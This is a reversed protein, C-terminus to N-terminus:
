KRIMGLEAAKEDAFPLATGSTYSAGKLTAKEWGLVQAMKAGSFDAGTFDGGGFDSRGLETHYFSARLASVKTFRADGLESGEFETENMTAGTFDVVRDSGHAWRFRTRLLRATSFDAGDIASAIIGAGDLTAGRFIADSLDASEMQAGDLRAGTFDAGILTAIRFQARSLDAERLDAGDLVAGRLNRGALRAGRLKAGKLDGCEGVYAPNLGVVGRDNRCDGTMRIRFGLDEAHSSIAFLFPILLLSTKHTPM